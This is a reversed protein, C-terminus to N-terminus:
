GLMQELPYIGLDALVGWIYRRGSPKGMVARLDATRQQAAIRQRETLDSDLGDHDDFYTEAM